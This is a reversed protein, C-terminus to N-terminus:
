DTILNNVKLATIIAVDGGTLNVGNLLITQDTATGYNSGNFSGSSSISVTTNTGDSTFHLYNTLNGSNEGQLLDSLNLVDGGNGTTFGAVTDSAPAATTGNDALQWVFTDAGTSGTMVDNGKGGILWDTGTGGTLSDNGIGGVLLHSGSGTATITDNGSGGFIVDQTNGGGGVLTDNGSSGAIIDRTGSAGSGSTNLTYATTGLSFGAYSAGGSFTLSEVRTAAVFHDTVSISQGNISITLNGSNATTNSDSFDLGTLVAGTSAITIADTGASDRITDAGDTLGFTYTDNGAGGFLSDNGLGGSLTDNGAGGTLSDAFNSGTLTTAAGTNSVTYGTTGIAAALNVAFGATSLTAIGSNSTAGTATFSATVTANTTAGSSVTLIDSGSLDTISDTGSTVAFTDNGTGGTLSDNGGGGTLTDNGTGGVLVDNASGGTLVDDGGFGYLAATTTSASSNFTNAGSTGISLGIVDVAATADTVRLTGSAATTQEAVTLTTASGNNIAPNSFAAAFPANLALTTGIDVDSATFTIGSANASVNSVVTLDNLPQVNISVLATDTGGHGDSITYTYTALGYFNATPTFTVNGGSMSVTGNVANQVSVLTLADGDADSDNALLTAVPVTWSTDENMTHVASYTTPKASLLDYTTGNNDSLEVKFVAQGGQDWYLIEISHVGSTGVTFQTHVTGTPAQIQDVTAVAVGDVKVQYGDDGRIRFNYTGAALEVAGFMRIIADTSTGPDTSLSAADSGLFSQLNTGRGLDNNFLNDSGYDFTKAVFTASPSHSAIFANIQSLSSLNGGDTGENYSYYESLLGTTVTSGSTPDNIAVPAQNDIVTTTVSNASSNVVLSEFNGGTTSGITVTFSENGETLSDILTTVNFTTSSSGAPITVSTVGNFDTGDIAVGSYNLTVTLATQTPQDLSLTYIGTDGERISAAGTLSLTTTDADDAVVTTVTSTTTLAEYNGGTTGTIGVTVNQNGQVYADDARVPVAASNATTQGVPITITAGNTLTIVFPTGTVANAVTATYVVSGGETANAAATLTVATADADDAVVTTVTSTTTLAEYNGGSTSTIGVVLFQNGQVYADDARVPVAASNATTQGVPITITAGNTLTIVLPTGTVANAVTATYVVSGGETANAAATLTVATADADDAVVTTVTSTTTLAEYNGGTTGTIGVTVNQNGQVYADDARVPVAASNATTQGVPITITAGNTLTIVLPTGTVANAVTATYVVSGGETANAAASLTVATADADDAVVTTVTSTTTLAEYNGGTTGTIGVTVNQNGQVYADDARVPVAASNATTQGVPITITAGNTLTIVLPTGTVANAVTATYVVSGGETANAAASLTVATADADDAVVTTVTSTTTLAEYNGGTTGTIGVTVNQNGQVYADDARVPVAASNATTQGVPITITAGNTLTIVLPTGTVANAVTATYVVSGGETANAAASLTVATADADDAVVTTVTSTTTLAEYNGGTTGTIGVTVNQNGQVYADDARVLVAASNATTQGVPITITAGNTLTIVLPTGTVANAVTATYVVSGGETVNAAASLTVATADADDAVVTTVTSTTTLAEYNGGTTGTIGVTVNQNGQVYADDARVPVAASNATTQGVPITITAGNTLTIVLPTGTVANAVTATYVVSGGETVNAAASLTVATADADDAVVTTVTSTTTLAEYNGGTTSTIGVTVNQNGQVYADDARVLVAASNATTQGVPITITAGNTLTIVLPTGTVANAVTATYVVSGGETVNAAATLTVATADADDAVVTTVTSTTTLAEYNGGTTGTIGVTVNQNGQVYTDDARVLLAASNATTQGVPITITAGNTLTIVLPTGTVANAVTATYVVSGGETVNAAASLTVATADADDAVVTTVTSTTTLAEYNGGTTGTIGVTVNQNGQVYTDDARVLLAASNATTQGVPITITAGNTLTIVLPTGTVANAVTATYVVSGGETANAAASLTVSTADVTDTISTVAPTADISVGIGGGSTGTITASMSSPDVYVDDSSAVTVSKTGSTQGALITITEGNSLTVTLDSVPASSITATYVLTGGAETLSPTASLSLVASNADVVTTTVSNAVGSIALNEFDGGTTSVLSVTFSEGGEVLADTLAAINFNATSSGAPITVTITGTIDTGNAAVGSYSLTVTVASQATQTLNLTYVGSNGETISTAGTLSLTTTDTTDAVVTTVTSTTTLAEYNGGTTGTIGVVLSQNGQVYADDARVLVASSSATTQGVPITITTGNSLTIVLPTGTVANAVTATYVVSGGETVNAAATLTVATADADDAVVTTVTSTTTLAEYNGGTTGTIGVTVNQNGQVYADDARVLVAASNATTQGVPITITAGNTLTIVLPTGTVANAVTATYVVSGGETANAAATLTVATADADDAVVTTVTSTTTLAEYNGGSTSTIGVTVNQNGQVYADDARVLVAASNATTQGVPITITAGNTLTIVLPTGTVANAVTATYVVSGGETANAAATLTVATADADDAVVTTVTSTTTLAEYNGGSTSTIGVTVNQNGQVYADDARVLVAASNATTQGVPITITAGNTLTIVLPTGTVANAVTASYVVSGGETTNAAASLTVATADADDAVVTTVTSTTTLAEYNGGTTGTIGVTVNQNGQAYADDARVLVAASNATTQGVPITITAGNTLTIVLPTGTVANAVTATYVVSGGETANAAATLTVATADADDAVVTTVTSTTTLAEYNGGSTSTIGVTVNQNGQVYADDARVLVAASNATTQGVPITITAGNTLTIVLPTGTVANAVTATYVVSGGETANAAATLTVATADADDAVVTTVTSTTTLAEYNGGTTGTIGVTVNQNGQVYADDARVLVAASNATTQGVPITITAGNSLTIVLPTGTVANAVTATYVVSGGETANAAATLTVATADADDAVVTTVTSTTTLAEYNGGSTSTIGVTVNQNGQAYADDARVLVAASNATTQGVPITITAGNTLTIVLPTGTVANAVTATYLVSGGETANAAATLTVATADADDAVVTTVTSTTTLAEYNGGSTSTIGVTVNQNGQVYADDARVLVAASNATTQGVPITITAGNTLTIVLPTGTVANAVTASYVVSGGETANAAATLTVATADADDAVVTTVTSTTTLAEYNGGSTSTIGVTVNQNGQVYADDARVLVAASNATTQGVPITITAGNTLTIVLPTGTVANAVTATYVVSGGETVNAAATLTVATADVTDTISTVAPTADISVGIGGGSTGTITASMSSPDVYVDDSSAVTISKTGSTQGALITITEGNSLTVTLDSVPASSITATYVLTGGAETLSPTASLSLVASNADVVTTTVSNAVGSIALNEFDGGTTSVLAVTFSEGGEVLADALAAINFNVTSSGAPITVTTTGTIDTGNVAVGSYSLTVTVASQATQTLNLTYVGSNGETISTAGSLSLTTTDADDAVVTTVTSTTTLAEYNGGSTSTIGVTVNQNGQVYADDARVLVAASNATTQGVPITITAGNTLTIVLPTGTVANAVTATYLVSGGETANAAATLTVATADADDAVVTTVTSTTTLAEYNGGSTSTIGVTVNQNGQVYADDARVLVAASNATTQGVPITITAGNTLTIVLPTGTVANAVTASYVVSGGETANAAATLTVATADADDAVVTTVTSTTTLAEYNGGSTSTIGVTVNQNGQVYADDARVLVAASNATTQGVPITITAGNTLTIVLPTGTVANAVTATYVVSGGETVNAAATLTVATADVTDTISTVAPTADISVGIGGGSTGTITASMSSPDVYVDDSSAVTISKTGSTQGALITITEGNSLTVTLDSVPASSITATYVLTGGAETLSPTASLSLVASNADVVTTTVSNAVGSIALNEFDGGTTSVLAVTFSEGGEVLADTLAAINFNVTSSGAPITVTTTGTIDTGNVAVGSYSLTVTVATQAPNTLSLTYVGSNGETISTAGILSLTTTDADDAVVTTVTSTTTLAEYNGGSTGTIGVTVNQNGQVYVDDARVLVAASNATTQGVPITITAGNTLTIVLPTGTVANAVTATYVVSGGETVNAAATLTVATADADDAVVTTVTSTTTLAEYNGGSTSTIGVTVNQNGQVYADDARVLVAASNATTQGVPITITAGNTLTIVLPTGTVANAVTATYVVSGGETANAAATLTVATADADDAVVTTVTSTTTLAEYNGGTTGTIGVVLSQNGQAYVDDARVLVAASSGTTGNVPITITAGNSLTIVLPTGTVANAVTATYVVSSGETANAAATLTVATADADDAVVTTVTSTTTLAEYNGGSTSTIGVTVNQNGQVYVDDARVLVAASNATTQGVPITITAGNTLTIVLPTGTVANAVTATYVVSGGETANAAATLTVATADVTDTISTVAPTADISVGIGGGSTGTITASINSPDIYVDDSNAVTISKTGSTQGALITITEGNSLTVTLDSVPASSITATYVLTGGAETLSPTASLSLVASNADVVTTTVSNAVGSIALNEFDGGTTSVLAVTFSEGGEVLADTLAAINFNVTSSGAPITVTTTGTIDTGNAAVGSYSLTVTVATQAPNTLNLTYVGSNGETISTAGTLSLTTTDADDAVVTTVTSTTTLAEYNGGSTSTIGVTVNQNGQVYADDARVLVAASNATTQGVPITITAGNTLTIVLPTGTVASAVTATYVVSSGETANAAATLTVATADVTDTISTVAPTADISVGIGGGSTGTITASMSSPDVYVDDSSAVTISKTGSTQGALITITEGNSLTVTLDSVPASSITATYVLTGGAETLSPTASLSLVASNADVVTTTVSNAVGSIALNEFDGGTTSVLAVTFSEGGEVLADTLADINFNATSSGAPITVTTTGTIDTGNAAVGSYSLTVTVDSQALQTLSLTYVGSNGETISTAGTLSLTTTDADDSVVTTVTSTTTLAEYNGGTTGTIGVTVNQNGQVYADDARVPVAASNATTQGVPITITAGNTLTIVLPTGTVANAVTATYVVSGGETANAAASLTVATADVTDTISTVAPTADISVGIGGGSTGTITASINSPDVYVDDSNAVTISKTGSTQGALITITEGNSLTVTLDSVPASSITATYVLTGGAETLSPTASLSLVASNADVVTTTVSNAVGSIALDEFDGGTTSVLAVTFSEGGEVLADTLADINFNATSSGAPITVTTTGTIDTGNAAVGSYSLTVTVATQAPNTLSLTYVGSNGEIISTAGTLSLTTTDTDDAVVTTVTSTTTLAEYNGGTTGTIGVTVNQNGQVYADDARVPVAASNATTQGVPITITAGNTLTIVLPTGTVANAVTATYVVSGGETANAAASLTVATADADDAVVTTVTSTTTLAEYNGGTTGTIGVVLSQNGQVYADDARVLVASSSATTQGVPITITAGNSLTIVLPTGTVANAVTATYVVSGGETVNAAATLTVATADADDAVVTTVTSTTTLAEYNGGSTSTIGVTVNQNGQVYADDARVLVAASNATTQGVPITITAGNSLTIVLPTGTVANAVTATYVVSGGETVNAAATLTVATADADDGVVTTVTSTTTLAEYNGGTTGTIGVVLSQNGQVYADDARVLVASSSATTQGVPITITAGNSLTIVLPTGTVANAVTATYVVSGGETANAAASLTVATADVTDTISTVAPTADISVGIGGGSTGTITASMSSPDVYVDDSSAVTISKTGSTQGALITITEGNSLTVTLDSVPASSITATYVLTGGAETLSPTASLSLVASNADVVTTTVSNAVGSIALNEFDGGTTSVLAVTFSEGGEVLADALAAINFNVTSSGAPITVTTTGTIDTGNVAVGSYSLTVTVASQATQTLNLTYVGSNGETISTAGTLSLTTTDADDAVVTTVTSTTTLAEYNGGTTGTIGVVLSQNGQVYADDARVLVASSSATTQGVPITITAGNSLTIVLPTGTVANAVTATYVVSGGETVNAAATLTVATADVTDTISTVAPTADISVGIGGGSTGTITASMSSPDVYVDDSSAVTISKTGSTQGALITITDGNSLTVTLDSVPASAITATYVVNGGAETISPTASLSLLAAPPQVDLSISDTDIKSGGSGTNGLDNTTIQLAASGNYGASPTYTLGNLASNIDAMTGSFTMTIDGSGSGVVFSLGSIGSLDITGHTVTLTVQVISSGADVDSISLLNGNGSNFVISGDQTLTQAAPTANVPADNVPAVTVNVTATSTLGGADTITYTFSDSGSFNANPTYIPNGTVGDIVVSGHAGQTVSAVTLVDGANPDTDNGRVAVTIATDENTSVTDDVATPALNATVNVSVTATSTHGHGDNVTYTFSDNGVYGTNPIYIPNGTVADIVVSGNAGQTVASVTLTDADPDTDNARVAVTVATDQTTTSTDNVAIPAANVPAVANVTVTVTATSTNGHGDNITYTFSDSGTYGANPSYIPNGTVGDIVVSGNAGQSVASVTLPDTDPDTDNGRVAVTIATNQNTTAADDVATPAVNVPAPPQVGINVTSTTTGGHGDNISVTFSDSGTYGTSPTYVFGGTAPNLTISGNSASGTVSYTLTDGDPDSASISGNIATNQPTSLNQNGSTPADNVPTVGINIVSTTVGGNGDNVTVTFSDSGNYNSSPTYIFSGTATDLTVNGHNASSTVSYSLVDGDPDTALVQGSVATDEPTFLNQDASVPADNVPTVGINITSTTTGGNGDSVTVVFQDSGNYNASPTYVFAGTTPNLTVTGHTATSSISYSLTDGDVDSAVVTGAIPTEEPTTLNQDASVPADNVPTVGINIKSTTTGGQGDSITVVFADSGNYNAGPTYVFTGTTPNLTVTGNTAASSIAYTLTDGDVDTAVVQGPIPTDEPTTLNQDSSVPADNVPTVGINIKSTTFGGNGDAVTVVFSDSGNFNASPTYVFAGTAPNLTVTGSTATTSIIYSLTDGEVDTAVVQGAVPTDEPTTLNQDSSVPADNVPTVTLGITTTTSNGHDDTVTVVFSDPGNYNGNPTYVFSGTASNLTITGNAPLGVLSYSLADNEVDTAIVQGIIPTDEDGTFGQPEIQPAHNIQNSSATDPTTGSDGNNAGFNFANPDTNEVVRTLEVFSHGESTGGGDLGAATEELTTTLDGGENLVTLAQEVSANDVAADQKDAALETWLNRDMLVEQDGAIAVPKGDGFDLEIRAGTATIVVEEATVTDGVKLPRLTGDASKAWAQGELSAVIAVSNAM